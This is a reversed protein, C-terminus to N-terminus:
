YGDNRVIKRNKDTVGGPIQNYYRRIPFNLARANSHNLEPLFIWKNEDLIRYSRMVRGKFGGNLEDYERHAVRWRIMDYIRHNEYALERAREDRIFQLNEDVPFDYNKIGLDTTVDLPATKMEYPTAGARDRIMAIYNFAEAKLDARGTELGLEYAAEARNLLVEGYRLTKWPTESVHLGRGLPATAVHKRVVIGTHTRGEIGLRTGHEGTIQVQTGGIDMMANAGDSTKRRGKNEEGTYENTSQNTDATGDAVTGPYDTYVGAQMNFTTGSAPETMGSFFFTARARPEMQSSQWFEEQTNFRVPRPEEEDTAIAPHEFMAVMDWSPNMTSGPATSLGNGNPLVMGDWSHTLYVHDYPNGNFYKTGYRKVFIDESTDTVFVDVFALEKNSGTHLTYGGQQVIAAAELVYQFFEAAVDPTMGQLGLAVAGDASGSTPLVYHGYKAITGAYLMARTMLAAATYRNARSNGQYMPNSNPSDIGNDMAFKLDEYIFKWSDYETSREMMLSEPDALPDLLETMLVVGGYRRVLGFYYFARLFRAEALYGNFESDSFNARYEPLKILFNNLERIRYYPGNKGEGGGDIGDFDWYGFDEYQGNFFGIAEGSAMSPWEKQGNWRNNSAGTVTYGKNVHYNYDEIPLDHYAITLYKRIGADSNLLVDESMIDRPTIDMNFCSVTALGIVAAFLYKLTKM